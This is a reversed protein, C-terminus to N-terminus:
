QDPRFASSLPRGDLRESPKVGVANAFTPGIDVVRAFQSYRGPLVGAGYLVLPVRADDPHPTGHYANNTFAYYWGPEMTVVIDVPWNPAIMHLWRRAIDDKTTDTRALESVIDARRVGAVRRLKSQIARIVSDPRLNAKLLPEKAVSLAGDVFEYEFEPVGRAGLERELAAVVPSLDVHGGRRPRLEPYSQIGHDSTLAFLIRSSDRLKYLSDILEGIYRDVRLMQDHMERSDPGFRHGVADTSSFSVALVDIAPGAGLRMARVGELALQATVSDMQPYGILVRAAAGPDEPFPHPFAIERGLSELRVSDVEGYDRAPRLLDWSKGAFSMPLGRDNFATVWAPLTDGYYTSTTFAGTNTYWLVTQRARGVMLIAADDKRSVSLARSRPDAERLWDILSTGLFQRPSVGRASGILPPHVSDIIARDGPQIGTSAPFRGSLMAAHGPETKTIAHDQWANTFVAGGQNLRKLGGTFQRGFRDLYDARMQDVAILVLLTPNERAPAQQAASTSGCALASVTALCLALGRALRPM